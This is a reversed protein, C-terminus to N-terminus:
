DPRPAEDLWTKRILDLRRAVTRRACGLRDAIEDNTYGEMRWVAVQRLSDDGLGDLLRGYEEAVMAAFEPTPEPGVIRELVGEDGNAWRATLDAEVFVRDGGRKQRRQRQRQAGVKRATIVVLLRWLDDRGSLQPFRGRAVGTCFSDFASLAADEGDADAAVGSKSRIRARALRVLQSFYREWLPQAAAADGAQLAGLWHTVSGQNESSM